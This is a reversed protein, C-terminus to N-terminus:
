KISDLINQVIEEVNKNKTDITVSAYKTYLPIREDWISELGREALGAVAKPTEMLRKEITDFPTNLFIVLSNEQIWALADKQFIISGAPSIVISQEHSFDKLFEYEMNRFYDAGKTNMVEILSKQEKQEVMLDLDAFDYGLKKALAEGITTKGASPMGILTIKNIM